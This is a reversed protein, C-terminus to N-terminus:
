IIFYVKPPNPCIMELKMEEKLQLIKKYKDEKKAVQLNMWPLKGVYFYLIM